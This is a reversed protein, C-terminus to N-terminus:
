KRINLINNNLRLYMLQLSTWYKNIEKKQHKEVKLRKVIYTTTKFWILAETILRIFHNYHKLQTQCIKNQPNQPM